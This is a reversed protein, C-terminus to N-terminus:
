GDSRTIFIYAIHIISIKVISQTEHFMLHCKNLNISNSTAIMTWCISFHKNQLLDKPASMANLHEIIELICFAYPM